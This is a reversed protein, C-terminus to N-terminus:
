ASRKVSEQITKVIQPLFNDVKEDLSIQVLKRNLAPNRYHEAFRAIMKDTDAHIRCFTLDINFRPGSMARLLTDAHLPDAFRANNPSDVLNHYEKGHCPADAILILVRTRSQWQLKLAQDLGGLLDEPEDNGPCAQAEVSQVSRAFQEWNDTFPFVVFREPFFYDRYGVFALRVSSVREYQRIASAIAVVKHKVEEIWHQMSITCDVCFCVDVARSQASRQLRPDAERSQVM